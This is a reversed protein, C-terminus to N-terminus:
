HHRVVRAVLCHEVDIGLRGIGTDVHRLIIGLVHVLQAVLHRHVRTRKACQKAHRFHIKGLDLAVTVSEKRVAGALDAEAFVQDEGRFAVVLAGSHAGDAFGDQRHDAFRVALEPLGRLGHELPGLDQVPPVLAPYLLRDVNQEVPQEVLFRDVEIELQARAQRHRRHRARDAELALVHEFKAVLEVARCEARGLQRGLFRGLRAGEDIRRQSVEDRFVAAIGAVVQRRSQEVGLDLVLIRALLAVEGLVLKETVLLERDEGAAAGGPALKGDGDIGEHVVVMEPFIAHAVTAQEVLRDLFAQAPTRGIWHERAQADLIGFDFAHHNRCAHADM